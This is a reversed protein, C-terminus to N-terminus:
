TERCFRDKRYCKRYEYEPNPCRIVDNLKFKQYLALDHMSSNGAQTGLPLDNATKSLGPTPKLLRNSRRWNEGERREDADPM